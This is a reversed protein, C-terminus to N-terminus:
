DWGLIEKLLERTQKLRLSQVAAWLGLLPRMEIEANFAGELHEGQFAPVIKIGAASLGLVGAIAYLYGSAAATDAPDDLGFCVCCSLRKLQLSRLFHIFIDELTYIANVLFKFSRSKRASKGKGAETSDEYSKEKRTQKQSDQKENQEEKGISRFVEGASQTSVEANWLNFGFWVLRCGGQLLSGNKSIDIIFRLPSLLIAALFIIILLLIIILYDAISFSGAM